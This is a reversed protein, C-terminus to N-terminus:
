NYVKYKKILLVTGILVIAVFMYTWISTGTKPIETVTNNAITNNTVVNNNVTNNTDAVTDDTVNVTFETSTIVANSNNVDVLSIRSVYTGAVDYTAIIPTVNEFSGGVAFGSPPGWAGIEAINYTNGASDTALIEPTSPGSLQEVKIQVNTYPTANTGRLTVTANKPTDKKVEGEFAVIFEYGNGPTAGTSPNANTAYILTSTFLTCILITIFLIKKM